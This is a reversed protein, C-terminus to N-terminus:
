FPIEDDLPAEAQAMPASPQAAQQGDSTQNPVFGGLPANTDTVGQQMVPRVRIAPVTRGQFQVAQSFMEIKMGIWRDTDNSLHLAITDANTRNLVMGKEAEQFYLVPKRDHDGIEEIACNKITVTWSRNQLDSAKLYKSPFAESINM